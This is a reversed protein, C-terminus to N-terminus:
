TPWQIGELDSASGVGYILTRLESAQERLLQVRTHSLSLVTAIQRPELKVETNDALTFVVSQSTVSAGTAVEFLAQRSKADHDFTGWDTVLPADIAANRAEKIAVWKLDQMARLTPLGVYVRQAEDWVWQMQETDAPKVPYVTHAESTIDVRWLSPDYEGPMTCHGDPTNIAVFDPPGCLRKGSFLGTQTDYLSFNM